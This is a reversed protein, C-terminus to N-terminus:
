CPQLDVAWACVGHFILWEALMWHLVGPRYGARTPWCSSMIGLGSGCHMAALGHLLGVMHVIVGLGCCLARPGVALWSAWTSCHAEELCGAM